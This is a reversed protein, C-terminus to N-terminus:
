HTVCVECEKCRTDKSDWCSQCILLGCKECRHFKGEMDKKLIDFAEHTELIRYSNEECLPKDVVVESGCGDCFFNLNMVGNKVAYSFGATLKIDFAKKSMFNMEKYSKNKIGNEKKYFM